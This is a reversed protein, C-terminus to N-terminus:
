EGSVEKELKEFNRTALILKEEPTLVSLIELCVEKEQRRGEAEGERYALFLALILLVLYVLYSM